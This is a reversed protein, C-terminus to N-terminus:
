GDEESSISRRHMVKEDYPKVYFITGVVNNPISENRIFTFLSSIRQDIEGSSSPHIENYQPRKAKIRYERQRLGCSKRERKPYFRASSEDMLHHVDDSSPTM